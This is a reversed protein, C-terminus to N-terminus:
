PAVRASGSELLHSFNHTNATLFAVMLTQEYDALEFNSVNADEHDVESVFFELLRKLRSQRPSQFTVATSFEINQDVPRGILAALKGRLAVADIRLIFQSLDGRFDYTAKVGAPVVPAENQSV